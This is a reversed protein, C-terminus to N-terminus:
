HYNNENSWDVLSLCCSPGRSLHGLGGSATVVFQVVASGVYEAICLREKCAPHAVLGGATQRNTFWTSGM